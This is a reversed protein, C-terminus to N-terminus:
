VPRHGGSDTSHRGYPDQPPPLTSQPPASQAPWSEAPYSPPPYSQAPYSQTPSPQGPLAQTPYTAAPYAAVGGGPHLATGDDEWDTEITDPGRRWLLTGIAAIGGLLLLAGIVYALWVWSSTGSSNAANAPTIPPGGPGTDVGAASPATSAPTSAAQTPTPTPKPTPKPAPPPANTVISFQAGTTALETLEGFGHGISRGSIMAGFQIQTPAVKTDFSLQYQLNTSGNPPIPQNLRIRNDSAVLAGDHHSINLGQWSGNATQRKMTIENGNVDGMGNGAMTFVIRLSGIPQQSNNTFSMSFQRPDAGIVFRSPLGGISARCCDDAALLPAALQRTALQPAALSSTALSPAAIAAPAGLVLAPIVAGLGIATASVARAIARRSM